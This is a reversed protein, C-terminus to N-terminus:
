VRTDIPTPVTGFEIVLLDLAMEPTMKSRKLSSDIDRLRRHTAELEAISFQSAIPLLKQVLFPALGTAQAIAPTRLGREALAQIQILSRTQGATLAVIGLPSEGDELLEHLLSLARRHSRRSLADTLDFIRTKQLVPTLARVHEIGICGDPGVYTGLKEIEVALVRLNDGGEQALIHAAERTLDRGAARARKMLWTELEMGRPSNYVQVKGHSKAVKVLPSSADLVEGTIVVLLTSEPMQPIHHALAETFSRHDLPTSKRKRVVAKPLGEVVVLRRSSFFPLTDCAALISEVSSEIGSFTDISFALDPEAKLRALEEHATFEDPGHLLIFM